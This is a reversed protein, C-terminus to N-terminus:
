GRRLPVPMRRSCCHGGLDQCTSQECEASNCQLGDWGPLCGPKTCIGSSGDRLGDQCGASCINACDEGWRGSVSCTSYASGFLLCATIIYTRTKSMVIPFHGM